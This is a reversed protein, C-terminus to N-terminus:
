QSIVYIGIILVVIAGLLEGGFAAVTYGIIGIITMGVIFELLGMKGNNSSTQRNPTSSRIVTKPRSTSTARSVTSTRRPSSRYGSSAGIFVDDYDDPDLGVSELADRRDDEDMDALDDPNLGSLYIDDEPDDPEGPEEYIGTKNMYDIYDQDWYNEDHDDFGNWGM